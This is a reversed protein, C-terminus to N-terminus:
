LDVGRASGHYDNGVVGNDSRLSLADYFDKIPPYGKPSQHRDLTKKM